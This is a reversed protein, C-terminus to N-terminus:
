SPSPPRLPEEDLRADGVAVQMLLRRKRENTDVCQRALV